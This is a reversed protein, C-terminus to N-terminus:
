EDESKPMNDKGWKDMFKSLSKSSEFTWTKPENSSNLKDDVVLFGNESIKIRLSTKIEIM